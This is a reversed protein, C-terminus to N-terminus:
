GSLLMYSYNKNETHDLVTIYSATKILRFYLMVVAKIKSEINQESLKLFLVSLLFM